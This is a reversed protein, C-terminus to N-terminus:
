EARLTAMPDVAAARRAPVFAAAVATLLVITGVGIFTVGDTPAVGFLLNELIRTALVAAGLGIGLGFLVPKLGQLVTTRLVRTGNAGLAMRIGISQRGQNVVFSLVGYVGIMGLAVALAAFTGLVELYFRSSRTSYHRVEDMTRVALIPVNPDIAWIAEQVTPAMAAPDTATAVIM